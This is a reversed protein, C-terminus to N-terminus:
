CIMCDERLDNLETDFYRICLPLQEFGSIDTTEDVLIVDFGLKVKQMM